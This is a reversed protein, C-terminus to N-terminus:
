PLLLPVLGDYTIDQELISLTAISSLFSLAIVSEIHLEPDDCSVDDDAVDDKFFFWYSCSFM